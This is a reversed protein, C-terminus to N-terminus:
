YLRRRPKYPLADFLRKGEDTKGALDIRINKLIKEITEIFDIYYGPYGIRRFSDLGLTVMDAMRQGWLAPVGPDNSFDGKNARIFADFHIQYPYLYGDDVLSATLGLGALTRLESIFDSINPSTHNRYYDFSVEFISALVLVDNHQFRRASLTPDAM